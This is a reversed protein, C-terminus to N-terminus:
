FSFLLLVVLFPVVGTWGGGFCLFSLYNGTSPYWGPLELCPERGMEGRGGGGGGGGM